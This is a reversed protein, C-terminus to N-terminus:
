SCIRLVDTRNTRSPPLHSLAYTRVMAITQGSKIRKSTNLRKLERDRLEKRMARESNKQAGFCSLVSGMTKSTIKTLVNKKRKAVVMVLKQVPGCIVFNIADDSDGVSAASSPTRVGGGGSSSSSSDGTGDGSSDDDDFDSDVTPHKSRDIVFEVLNSSHGHAAAVMSSSSTASNEHRGSAHMTPKRSSSQTSARKFTYVANSKDGTVSLKCKIENVQSMSPAGGGLGGRESDNASLMIKIDTCTVVGLPVFDISDMCEMRYQYRIGYPETDNVVVEEANPEGIPKYLIDYCMPFKMIEPFVLQSTVVDKIYREILEPLVPLSIEKSVLGVGSFAVKMGFNVEPPKMLTLAVGGVLRFKAVPSLM